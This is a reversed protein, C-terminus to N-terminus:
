VLGDFPPRAELVVVSRRPDIGTRRQGDIVLMAAADPRMASVYADEAPMWEDVWRSRAAEGDREIGAPWAFKEPRRWGSRSRPM